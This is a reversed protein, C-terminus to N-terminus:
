KLVGKGYHTEWEELTEENPGFSCPIIRRNATKIKSISLGISVSCSRRSVAAESQQSMSVSAGNWIPSSCISFTPKASIGTARTMTAQGGLAM